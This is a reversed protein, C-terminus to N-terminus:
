EKYEPLETWAIVENVTIFEGYESDYMIFKNESFDLVNYFTYNAVKIVVYYKGEKKPLDGDAVKHWVQKRYGANYVKEAECLDCPKNEQCNLVCDTRLLLKIAEIERDM